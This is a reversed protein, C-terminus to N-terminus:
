EPECTTETGVVTGDPCCRWGDPCCQPLDFYVSAASPCHLALSSPAVGADMIMPERGPAVLYCGIGEGTKEWGVPREDRRQGNMVVLRDGFMARVAVDTGELCAATNELAISFHDLAAAIGLDAEIEQDSVDPFFGIVMPGTVEIVQIQVCGTALSITLGLSL